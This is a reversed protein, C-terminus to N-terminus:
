VKPILTIFTQNISPTVLSTNLCTLIADAVEDGITSWYQQFFLPPMGNPGLLKLSEMQQLAADVEARVFTTSLELNMEEMVVVPTAKLTVDIQDLTSSTFLNQYFNVLINAIGAKMLVNQFKM